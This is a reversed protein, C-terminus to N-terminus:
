SVSMMLIIINIVEIRESETKKKGGLMVQVRYSEMIIIIIIIIIIYEGGFVM